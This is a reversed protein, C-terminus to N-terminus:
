KEPKSIHIQVAHLKEGVGPLYNMGATILNPHLFKTHVAGNKQKIAPKQAWIADQLRGSLFTHACADGCMNEQFHSTQLNFIEFSWGAKRYVAQWYRDPSHLIPLLCCGLHCVFLRAWLQGRKFVWADMLKNGNWKRQELFSRNFNASTNPAVVWHECSTSRTTIINKYNVSSEFYHAKFIKKNHKIPM